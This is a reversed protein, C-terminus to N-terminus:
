TPADTQYIVFMEPASDSISESVLLSLSLLDPRSQRHAVTCMDKTWGSAHYICVCKMTWPITKTAVM